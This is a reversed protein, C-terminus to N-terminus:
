YIKSNYIIASPPSLDRELHNEKIPPGAERLQWRLKVEWNVLVNMIAENM